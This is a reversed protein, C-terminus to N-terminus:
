LVFLKSFIEIRLDHTPADPLYNQLMKKLEDELQQLSKLTTKEENIYRGIYYVNKEHVEVLDDSTLAVRSINWVPSKYLKMKTAYELAFGAFLKLQMGMKTSEIEAM